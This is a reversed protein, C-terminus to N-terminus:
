SAKRIILLLSTCIYPGVLTRLHALNKREDDFPPHAVFWDETESGLNFDVPALYHGRRSLEMELRKIDGRRYLVTRAFDVTYRNSFLNFETTHVAWGGPKLCDMQRLLFEVGNQLSGLHELSSCSWSFDYDTITRPIANMDIRQFDVTSDFYDRSCIEPYALAERNAPWHDQWAGGCDDIKDTALIQCGHKAFLAPLLERGVGFGVGRRNQQLMGRESLSQSITVFEWEKRHLFKGGFPIGYRTYAQM